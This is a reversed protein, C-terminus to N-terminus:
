AGGHKMLIDKYEDVEEFDVKVNLSGITFDAALLQLKKNSLGGQISGRSDGSHALLKLILYSYVLFLVAAHHVYKHTCNNNIKYCCLM